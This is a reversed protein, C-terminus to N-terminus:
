RLTEVVAQGWRVLGARFAQDTGPVVEIRADVCRAAAAVAVPRHEALDQDAMVARLPGDFSELGSWADEHPQVVVLREPRLSDLAHALVWAGWEIGVGAVAPTDDHTESLRLHEFASILAAVAADDAFEGPSGGVGAYNFRLVPHGARALAWAIEAVLPHDMSGRDPHPSAVVVAPRETGRHYLGDLSSPGHPIM